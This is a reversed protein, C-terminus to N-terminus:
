VVGVLLVRGRELRKEDFRDLADELVRQQQALQGFESIRAAALVRM